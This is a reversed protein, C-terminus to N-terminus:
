RSPTRLSEVFKRFASTQEVAVAKAGKLKVFITQNDTPFIAALIAETEDGPPIVEVYSGTLSGAKVEEVSQALEEETIPPLEIQGRWRNVNELVSGAAAGLPIVTVEAKGTESTIDFAAIRFSNTRGPTWGDPVEYDWSAQENTDSASAATDTNTPTESDERSRPAPVTGSNNGGPRGRAFPAGSMGGGSAKGVIDVYYSERDGVQITKTATDLEGIAIPPLNLQGRWRNVNLLVYPRLDTNIALKTVSIERDAAVLTAERFQNGPQEAWGDPLAFRPRGAEFSVGEVVRQFDGEMEAIKDVPGMAKLFWATSDVPILVALMRQDEGTVAQVDRTPGDTSSTATRTATPSSDVQYRSIQAPEECGTLALVLLPLAGFIGCCRRGRTSATWSIRFLLSVM